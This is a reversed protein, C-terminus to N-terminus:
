EEVILNSFDRKLSIEKPAVEEIPAEQPLALLNARRANEEEAQRAETAAINRAMADMSARIEARIEAEEARQRAERAKMEAIYANGKEDMLIATMRVWTYSVTELNIRYLNKIGNHYLIWENIATETHLYFDVSVHTVGTEPDINERFNSTPSQIKRDKSYIM